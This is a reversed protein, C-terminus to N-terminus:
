FVYLVGPEPLRMPSLESRTFGKREAQDLVETSTEGVAILKSNAIAVWRGPHKWLERQLEETMLRIPETGRAEEM